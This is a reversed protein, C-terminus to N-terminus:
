DLLARYVGDPLIQRYAQRAAPSQMMLVVSLKKAPDIWFYPGWAGAWSYDGISGPLPNRGAETRVVVGLGYGQGMRASPELAGLLKMDRGMEIGPPLRNTTMAEISRRSLLRVGGVEGGGLLIRLFRAYDGATSMMGASGSKWTARYTADPIPPMRHRPGEEQPRAVRVQKDATAEFGTDDLGLPRAIRAAIFADLPMGSVIEIVRGLVDTSMSYEWHTGPQYLLALRALKDVMEANTQDASTVNMGLYSQKVADFGADGNTLGSTHRMLDEITMPRHQPEQGPEVTGDANERTIAVKTDGFAPIYRALPDALALKGEEVLMLAAVTTIPKTLSAIRFISNTQMPANAQRDRYGFAEFMVVKGNRVISVVAGPLEQKAVGEKLRDSLRRLGASSVGVEEPSSARPLDRAALPAAMAFVLLALCALRLVTMAEDRASRAKWM